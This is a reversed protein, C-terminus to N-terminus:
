SSAAAGSARVYFGSLKDTAGEASVMGRASLHELHALVSLAAAEKLNADLAGYLKGNANVTPKRRDTSVVDHLYAKPDAWDWQTIVVNREVGQPRQPRERRPAEPTEGGAIRDTWDAFMALMRQRGLQDLSASM